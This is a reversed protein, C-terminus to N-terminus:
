YVCVKVYKTKQEENVANIKVSSRQLTNVRMVCLFM